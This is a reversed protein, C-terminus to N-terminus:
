FPPELRVMEGVLLNESRMKGNVGQKLPTNQAPRPRLITEVTEVGGQRFGSFRNPGSWWVGVGRQLLTNISLDQGSRSPKHLMWAPTKEPVQFTSCRVKM